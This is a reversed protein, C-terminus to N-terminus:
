RKAEWLFRYLRPPERVGGRNTSIESTMSKLCSYKTAAARERERERERENIHYKSNIIIKNEITKDSPQIYFLITSIGNGENIFM